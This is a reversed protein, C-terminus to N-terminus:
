SLYPIGLMPDCKDSHDDVHPFPVTPIPLGLYACVPEWGQDVSYELLTWNNKRCENRVWENGLEYQRGVAERWKQMERESGRTKQLILRERFTLKETEIATHLAKQVSKAFDDTTGPHTLLIVPADPFRQKLELWYDSLPSDPTTANYGRELLSAIRYDVDSPSHAFESWHVELTFNPHTGCNSNFLEGHAPHYGLIKLAHWFSQTGTRAHGASILKIGDSPQEPLPPPTFMLTASDPVTGFQLAMVSSVLMIGTMMFSFM